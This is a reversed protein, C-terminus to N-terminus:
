TPPSDPAAGIGYARLVDALVLIGRLHRVDDRSVVPLINLRTEGMRQLALDLSHDTHLHPFNDATLHSDSVPALIESLPRTSASGGSESEIQAARIMGALQSGEVVPWADVGLSRMRGLAAAATTQPTLPELDTRMALAVLMSGERTRTEGTPLHIGDQRALAEYIPEHQLKYSIFFSILNSIMLPVIISYDRTTEFIMIVSTLPVRVIGAFATGMGVLAYVGAPATYQPLFMHAVSGVTGGLM